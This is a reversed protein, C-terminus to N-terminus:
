SEEKSSSKSKQKVFNARLGRDNFAEAVVRDGFETAHFFIEGFRTPKCVLNMALQSTLSMLLVESWEDATSSWHELEESPVVGLSEKSASMLQAWAVGIPKSSKAIMSTSVDIIVVAENPFPNDTENMVGDVLVVPFGAILDEDTNRTVNVSELNASVISFYPRCPLVNQDVYKELMAGRDGWCSHVTDFIVTAGMSGAIAFGEILRQLVLERRPSLTNSKPCYITIWEPIELGAIPAQRDYLGAFNLGPIMTVPTRM